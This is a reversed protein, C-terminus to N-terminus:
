GLPSSDKKSSLFTSASSKVRGPCIVGSFAQRTEGVGVGMGVGLGM